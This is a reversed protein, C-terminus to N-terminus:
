PQPQIKLCTGSKVTTSTAPALDQLRLRRQHLHLRLLLVARARAGAVRRLCAAPRAEAGDHFGAGEELGEEADGGAVLGLRAGGTGGWM